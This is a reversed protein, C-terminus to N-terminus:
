CGGENRVHTRLSERLMKLETRLLERHAMCQQLSKEYEELLARALKPCHHGRQLEALVERQRAVRVACRSVRGDADKILRRVLALEAAAQREM